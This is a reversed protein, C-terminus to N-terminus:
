GSPGHCIMAIAHLEDNTTWYFHRIHWASSPHLQPYGFFLGAQEIM